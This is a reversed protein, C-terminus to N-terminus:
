ANCGRCPAPNFPLRVGDWTSYGFREFDQAFRESVWLATTANYRQTVKSITSAASRSDASHRTQPLNATAAAAAAAGVKEGDSGANSSTGGTNKGGGSGGSACTPTFM